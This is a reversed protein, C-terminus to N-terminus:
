REIVIAKKATRLNVSAMLGSSAQSDEASVSRAVMDNYRVSGVLETSTTLGTAVRKGASVGAIGAVATADARRGSSSGRGSRVVCASAVAVLACDSKQWGTDPSSDECAFTGAVTAAVTAVESKM